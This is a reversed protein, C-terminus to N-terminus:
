GGRSELYGLLWSLEYRDFGRWRDYARANFEWNEHLDEGVGCTGCRHQQWPKFEHGAPVVPLYTVGARHPDAAIAQRQREKFHVIM